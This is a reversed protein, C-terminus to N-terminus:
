ARIVSIENEIQLDPRCAQLARTALQRAYYSTSKGTVRVTAEDLVIGLQRIQGYTGERLSERLMNLEADAANAANSRADVSSPSVTEFSAPTAIM